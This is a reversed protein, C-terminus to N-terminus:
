ANNASSSVVSKLWRDLEGFALYLPMGLFTDLTGEPDIVGAQIDAIDEEGPVTRRVVVAAIGGVPHSDALHHNHEAAETRVVVIRDTRHEEEEATCHAAAVPSHHEEEVEAIRHEGLHSHLEEEVFSHRVVEEALLNHLVETDGVALLNRIM